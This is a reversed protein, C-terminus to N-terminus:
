CDDLGYMETWDTQWLFRVHALRAGIALSFLFTDVEVHNHM